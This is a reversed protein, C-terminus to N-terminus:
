VPPANLQSQGALHVLRSLSRREIKFMLNRHATVGRIRDLLGSFTRGLQAHFLEFGCNAVAIGLPRLKSAVRNPCGLRRELRFANLWPSAGPLARYLHWGKVTPTCALM